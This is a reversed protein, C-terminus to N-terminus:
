SIPNSLIQYSIRVNSLDRKLLELAGTQQDLQQKLKKTEEVAAAYNNNNTQEPSKGKKEEIQLNNQLARISKQIAISDKKKSVIVKYLSDAKMRANVGSMEFLKVSDQYAEATLRFQATDNTWQVTDSILTTRKERVLNVESIFMGVPQSCVIAIVPICILYVYRVSQYTKSLFSTTIARLVIVVLSFILWAFFIALYYTHLISEFFLYASMGILVSAFLNSFGILIYPFHDAPPLENRIEPDIGSFFDFFHGRKATTPERNTRGSSQEQM